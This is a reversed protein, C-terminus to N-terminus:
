DPSMSVPRPAPGHPRPGRSAGRADRHPDHRRQRQRTAGGGHSDREGRRERECAPSGRHRALADAQAHLASVPQLSLLKESLLDHRDVQQGPDRVAHVQPHSREEAVLVPVLRAPQDGPLDPEPRGGSPARAGGHVHRERRRAPSVPVRLVLGDRGDVEGNRDFPQRRRVRTRGLETEVGARTEDELAVAVADSGILIQVRPEGPQEAPQVESEALHVHEALRGDREPGPRRVQAVLVPPGRPVTLRVGAGSGSPRDSRQEGVGPERSRVPRPAWPCGPLLSALRGARRAWSSARVASGLSM